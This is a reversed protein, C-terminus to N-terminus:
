LKILPMWHTVGNSVYQDTLEVSRFIIDKNTWGTEKKIKDAVLYMTDVMTWDRNRIALVRKEAKPLKDNVDIWNM